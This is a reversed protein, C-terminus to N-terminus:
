DPPAGAPVRAIALLSTGVPPSVPAMLEVTKLGKLVAHAAEGPPRFGREIVRDSGTASLLLKRVALLPVMSLGWYTVVEPTLNCSELLATLTRRTYRRVHGAAEDYRSYLRQSAPVNIVVVGGPSAHRAASTVFAADDDIHEIVDMMFIAPYRGVLGSDRDHIDYVLLRGRGQVAMELAGLNLDCGDVAYGLDEELQQRFIGNGCGVEMVATTPPPLRRAHRRLAEMRWQIWFHDLTAIDYWSDAMSVSQPTSIFEPKAM